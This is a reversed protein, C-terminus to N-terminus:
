LVVKNASKQRSPIGTPVHLQPTTVIKQPLHTSEYATNSSYGTRWLSGEYDVFISYQFSTEVKTIPPLSNVKSWETCQLVAGGIGLQGYTNAGFCWVIGRSDLLLIHSMSVAADVIPPLNEIKRPKEKGDNCDGAIWAEGDKSIMVSNNNSAFVRMMPPINEILAHCTEKVIKSGIQGKRNSGAGYVLGGDTLLLSHFSGAASSAIAPLDPIFEFSSCNEVRLGLPSSRNSGCGWANGNTDVVLSFNSDSLSMSSIPPLYNLVTWTPKLRRNPLGLCRNENKGCALLTTGKLLFSNQSACAIKGEIRESNLLSLEDIREWSGIGLEGSSNDGFGWLQHDVDFLLCHTAATALHSM